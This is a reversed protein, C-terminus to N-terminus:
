AARSVHAEALDVPEAVAATGHAEPAALLELGLCAFLGVALLPLHAAGAAVLLVLGIAATLVLFRDSRGEVASGVAALLRAACVVIAALVALSALGGAGALWAVLVSGALGAAALRLAVRDAERGLRVNRRRYAATM